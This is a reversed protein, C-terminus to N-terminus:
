LAQLTQAYFICMEYICSYLKYLFYCIYSHLNLHYPLTALEVFGTNSPLFPRHTQSSVINGLKEPQTNSAANDYQATCRTSWSRINGPSFGRTHRRSWLMGLPVNIKETPPGKGEQKEGTNRLSVHAWSTSSSQLWRWCHCITNRSM